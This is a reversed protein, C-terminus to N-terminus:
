THAIIFLTAAPVTIAAKKKKKGKKKHRRHPASTSATPQASPGSDKQIHFNITSLEAINFM